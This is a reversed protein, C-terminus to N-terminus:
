IWLHRTRRRRETRAPPRGYVRSSPLSEEEAEIGWGRHSSIPEEGAAMGWGGGNCKDLAAADARSRAQKVRRGPRGVGGRGGDGAVYGAGGGRRWVGRQRVTLQRGWAAAPGGHRVTAFGGRAKAARKGVGRAEDPWDLRHRPALLVRGGRRCVCYCSSGLTREKECDIGM